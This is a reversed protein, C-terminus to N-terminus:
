ATAGPAIGGGTRTRRRGAFSAIGFTLLGTIVAAVLPWTTWGRDSVIVPRAVSATVGTDVLRPVTNPQDSVALDYGLKGAPVDLKLYTFWMRSPVWSMGKDSRLDSLLL